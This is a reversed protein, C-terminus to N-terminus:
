CKCVYSRVLFGETMTCIEAAHDALGGHAKFPDRLPGHLGNGESDKRVAAHLPEEGQSSSSSSSFASCAAVEQRQQASLACAPSTDKPQKAPQAALVASSQVPYCSADGNGNSRQDTQVNSSGEAVEPQPRSLPEFM